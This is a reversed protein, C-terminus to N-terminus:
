EVLIAAGVGCEVRLVGNGKGMLDPYNDEQVQKSVSGVLRWIFWSKVGTSRTSKKRLTIAM